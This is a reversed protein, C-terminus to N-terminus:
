PLAALRPFATPQGTTTAGLPSQAVCPPGGPDATYYFNQVTARLDAPFSPSLTPPPNATCLYSGFAPLGQILKSYGGPELYPNSRSTSLRAGYAALTEPNVPLSTRVYKKLTTTGAVPESAGTAAASNAFFAALERRYANIYDLVPVIGGLYPKLRALLPVSQDLVRQLAPLGAKSAKTLPGVNVLLDRLEPALANVSQLAPSLERAAPRLQDVLPKTADAFRTLRDITTRTGVLFAPFARIAAALATNQAATAAFVRNSNDILAPLQGRQTLAAFTAGGDRILGRTAADERHLVTLVADVNTAFPYLQALAANLDAGRDTLAIGDQVMWTSFAQRTTPDFSSLLQDLQVTPAVQAAPLSSGDPLRPTRSTGASLEVYTEGLLSKQRLVARTDAPRPAYQKDLELGARTLGTRRDLGLDVVRGVTIGSIKVQSEHGLQIAQNFEVTLRYGKPALPVSGGFSTWLFILLGVCSVTFAVLTLLRGISPAQKNM